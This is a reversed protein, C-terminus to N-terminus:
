RKIRKKQNIHVYTVIITTNNLYPICPMMYM